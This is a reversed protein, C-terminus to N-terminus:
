RTNPGGFQPRKEGLFQCEVWYVWLLCFTDSVAFPNVLYAAFFGHTGSRGYGDVVGVKPYKQGIPTSCSIFYVVINTIYKPM